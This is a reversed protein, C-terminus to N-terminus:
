KGLLRRSSDMLEAVSSEGDRAREVVVHAILAVAEPYSLKTGRALRRQALLGAQALQLHDTERPSLKM